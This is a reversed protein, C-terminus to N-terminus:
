GRKSDTALFLAFFSPGRGLELCSHIANLATRIALFLDDKLLTKAEDFSILLRLHRRSYEESLSSEFDQFISM